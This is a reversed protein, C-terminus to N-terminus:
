QTPFPNRIMVGAIMQGDSLDETIIEDCGARIAAQVILSDWMAIQHQRSLVIADLVMAADTTVIPLSALARTARLAAEEDLPPDLRRTTAWYFEALVQASVVLEEVREEILAQAVSQKIPAGHDQAYVAVNTDLFATM